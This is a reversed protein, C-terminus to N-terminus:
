YLPVFLFVSPLVKTPFLVFCMCSFIQWTKIINTLFASYFPWYFFAFLQVKKNTLLFFYLSNSKCHMKDVIHWSCTNGENLLCSISNWKALYIAVNDLLHNFFFFFGPDSNLIEQSSTKKYKEKVMGNWRRKSFEVILLSKSQTLCENENMLYINISGRTHTSM